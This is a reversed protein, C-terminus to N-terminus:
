LMFLTPIYVHVILPPHAKSRSFIAVSFTIQPVSCELRVLLLGYIHRHRLDKADHAFRTGEFVLASLSLLSLSKHNVIDM